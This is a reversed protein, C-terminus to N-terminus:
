RVANKMSWLPKGATGMYLANHTIIVTGQDMHWCAHVMCTTQENM